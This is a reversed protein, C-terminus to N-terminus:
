DLNGTELWAVCVAALQLVKKRLIDEEVAVINDLRTNLISIWEDPIHSQDHERGWKIDQREREGRIQDFIVYQSKPHKLM